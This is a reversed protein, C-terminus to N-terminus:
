AACGRGLDWDPDTTDILGEKGGGEYWCFGCMCVPEKNGEQGNNSNMGSEKEALRDTMARGLLKSM